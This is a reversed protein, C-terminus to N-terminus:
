AYVNRSRFVRMHLLVFVFISLIVVLSLSAQLVRRQLSPGAATATPETM